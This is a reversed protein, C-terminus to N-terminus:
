LSGLAQCVGSQYSLCRSHLRLASVHCLFDGLGEPSCRAEVAVGRFTVIM